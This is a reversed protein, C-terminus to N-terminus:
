VEVPKLLLSIEPSSFCKSLWLKSGLLNHRSWLSGLSFDFQPHVWLNLLETLLNVCFLLQMLLHVSYSNWQTQCQVGHSRPGEDEEYAEGSYKKRQSEHDVECLEVEEMDDTLMVEDRKPLLRELHSFMNEPLWYNEPFEVQLPICLMVCFFLIIGPRLLWVIMCVGFHFSSIVYQCTNCVWRLSFSSCDKTVHIETCLCARM